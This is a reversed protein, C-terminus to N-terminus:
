RILVNAGQKINHGFDKVIVIVTLNEGSQEPMGEIIVDGGFLGESMHSFLPHLNTILHIGVTIDTPFFYFGDVVGKRFLVDENVGWREPLLFFADM